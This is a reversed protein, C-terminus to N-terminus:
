FSHVTDESLSTQLKAFIQLCRFQKMPGMSVYIMHTRTARVLWAKPWCYTHLIALSQCVRWIEQGDKKYLGDYPPDWFGFRFQNTSFPLHKWDANLTPRGTTSLDISVAGDELVGDTKGFFADPRSIEKTLRKIVAKCAWHSTLERRMAWIRYDIEHARFGYRYNIGAEKGIEIM